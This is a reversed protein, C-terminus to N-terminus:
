FEVDDDDAAAGGEQQEEAMKAKGTLALKRLEAAALARPDEPDLVLSTRISGGAPDVTMNFFNYGHKKEGRVGLKILHNSLDTRRKKGDDGLVTFMSAKKRWRNYPGFKMSTISIVIPEWNGDAHLILAWLYTTQIIDNGNEPNTLKGFDKEARLGLIFPDKPDYKAVPVGAGEVPPGDSTRPVWEVYLMTELVPLIELEAGYVEESVTNLFLGPKAGEVQAEPDMIQKSQGQLLALFPVSMEKDANGDFGGHERGELYSAPVVAAEERKAVAKSKQNSM